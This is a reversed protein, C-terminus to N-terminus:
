WCTARHSRGFKMNGGVLDEGKVLAWRWVSIAATECLFAGILMDVYFVHIYEDNKTHFVGSVFSLADQETNQRRRRGGTRGATRSVLEVASCM